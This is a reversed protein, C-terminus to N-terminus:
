CIPELAKDPSHHELQQLRTWMETAKNEGLVPEVCAMFKKGLDDWTLPNEPHGRPKALRTQFRRGSRHIIEIDTFDHFVSEPTTLDPHIYVNIKPLLAQVAADNVAKDTFESFGVRGYHLAAALCYEMSFKGELGTSPRHYPLTHECRYGVGCNVQNVDAPVIDEAEIGGLIIDITCHTLSCTPYLKYIIGPRVADFPSGLEAVARDSAVHDTGCFLHFFGEFAEIASPNATLGGEALRAALVGSQAALGAHLSKTMTGFNARLGGALSAAIALANCIKAEDLRLLSAAAATAGITGLTQTTHWGRDYHEMNMARGLKAEVEVGVLYAVILAKGDAEVEPALAFIAPVVPASPHGRMSENTDDFDHAHAMTGNVLAANRATTTCGAGWISSQGKEARVMDLTIQTQPEHLAAIAGGICDAIARKAENSAEDPIDTWSQRGIFRALTQTVALRELADM